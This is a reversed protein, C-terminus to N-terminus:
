GYLFSTYHVAINRYILKGSKNYIDVYSDENINSGFYQCIIYNDVDMIITYKMPVVVKGKRNVLGSLGGRSKLFLGPAREFRLPETRLRKGTSSYITQKDISYDMATIDGNTPNIEIWTYKFPVVTRNNKNIAGMAGNKLVPCTGKVFMLPPEGGDDYWTDDDDYKFPIVVRGTKNIFGWKSNKQVAALGESFDCVETYTAPIVVKGSANVFGCKQNRYYIILGNSIKEGCRGSVARSKTGTNSNWITFSPKGTKSNETTLGYLGEGLNTIHSNGANLITEGQLNVLRMKGRQTVNVLNNSSVGMADESKINPIIKGNKMLYWTMTKKGDPNFASDYSVSFYGNGAYMINTYKAAAVKSVTFILMLALLAFTSKRM